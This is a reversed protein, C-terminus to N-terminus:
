SERRNWKILKSKTRNCVIRYSKERTGQSSACRISFQFRTTQVYRKYMYLKIKITTTLDCVYVCVCVCVFVSVCM